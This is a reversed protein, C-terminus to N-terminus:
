EDIPNRGDKELKQFLRRFKSEAQFESESIEFTSIRVVDKQKRNKREWTIAIVFEILSLFVLTTCINMWINISVAYSTNLGPTVQLQQTILALLSTISLSARAPHSNVPVWFSVFSAIVITFSPIYKRSVM